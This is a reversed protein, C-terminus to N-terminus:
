FHILIHDKSLRLCFTIFNMDGRIQNEALKFPFLHTCMRLMVTLEIFLRNILTVLTFGTYIYDAKLQMCMCAFHLIDFCLSCSPWTTRVRRLWICICEGPNKVDVLDCLSLVQQKIFENTTDYSFRDIVFWVPALRITSTSTQSGTGKKTFWVCELSTYTLSYLYRDCCSHVNSWRYMAFIDVPDPFPLDLCWSYLCKEM